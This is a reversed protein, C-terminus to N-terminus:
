KQAALEEADLVLPQWRRRGVVPGFREVVGGNSAVILSGM